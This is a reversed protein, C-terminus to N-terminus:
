SGIRDRQRSRQHVDGALRPVLLADGVLDLGRQASLGRTVLDDAVTIGHQRAGVEASGRAHQQGAVEVGDRSRVVHGTPEDAVLQEAAPGRVHLGTVGDEQVQGGGNSISDLAL